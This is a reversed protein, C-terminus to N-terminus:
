NKKESHVGDGKSNQEVFYTIFKNSAAKSYNICGVLLRAPPLEFFFLRFKKIGAPFLM